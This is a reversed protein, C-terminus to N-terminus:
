LLGDWTGAAWSGSGMLWREVTHGRSDVHHWADPDISRRNCPSHVQRAFDAHWEPDSGSVAAVM